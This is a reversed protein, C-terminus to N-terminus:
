PTKSYNEFTKEEDLAAPRCALLRPHLSASGGTNNEGRNLGAPAYAFFASFYPSFEIM